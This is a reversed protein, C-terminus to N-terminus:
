ESIFKFFFVVVALRGGTVNHLDSFRLHNNNYKFPNLSSLYTFAHINFYTYYTNHIKYMTYCLLIGSLYRYFPIYYLQLM